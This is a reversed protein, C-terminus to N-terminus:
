NNYDENDSKTITPIISERGVLLSNAALQRAAKKFAQLAKAADKTTSVNTM